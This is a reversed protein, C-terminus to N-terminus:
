IRNESTPLLSLFDFTQSASSLSDTMAIFALDSLEDNVENNVEDHCLIILLGGVKCKLAHSISFEADYGDWPTPLDGSTRVYGLHLADWFEKPSVKAGNLTSLV